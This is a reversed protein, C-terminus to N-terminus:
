FFRQYWLYLLIFIYLIFGALRRLPHPPPVAPSLVTGLLMGGLMGGYVSFLSAGSSFGMTLGYLVFFIMLDRMYGTYRFLRHEIGMVVLAGFLAFLGSSAGPLLPQHLAVSLTFGLAGGLFFIFLFRWTGFLRGVTGSIVMLTLSNFVLLPFSPQYISITLLQWWRVHGEQPQYLWATVTERIDQAAAPLLTSGYTLLLLVVLMWGSLADKKFLRRITLPETPTKKQSASLLMEFFKQKTVWTESAHQFRQYLRTESLGFHGWPINILGSPGNELDWGYADLRDRGFALRGSTELRSMLDTHPTDLWAYLVLMRIKKGPWQRRLAQAVLVSEQITREVVVGWTPVLLLLRIYVLEHDMPKIFHITELIDGQHSASYGFPPIDLLHFAHERIIHDALTWFYATKKEQDEVTYAPM